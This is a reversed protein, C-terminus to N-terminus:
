TLDTYAFSLFTSRPCYLGIDSIFICFQKQTTEIMFFSSFFHIILPLYHIYNLSSQIGPIQLDYDLMKLKQNLVLQSVTLILNFTINDEQATEM